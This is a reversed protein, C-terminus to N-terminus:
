VLTLVMGLPVFADEILDSQGKLLERAVVEPSGPSDSGEITKTLGPKCKEEQEFGPSLIGAPFFCHVDIGYLILESRLTDALGRIAHKAPSYSSYGAFSMYALTSAVFVLKPSPGPPSLSPSSSPPRQAAMLTASAKATFCATWYDTAM